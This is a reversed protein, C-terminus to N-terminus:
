KADVKASDILILSENMFADYCTRIESCYTRETDVLETIIFKRKTQREETTYATKLFGDPLVRSTQSSSNVSPPRIPKSGAPRFM